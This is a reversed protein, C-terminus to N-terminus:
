PKALYQKKRERESLENCKMSADREGVEKKRRSTMMLNSRYELRKNKHILEEFSKLFNFATLMKKRGSDVADVSFQVKRDMGSV